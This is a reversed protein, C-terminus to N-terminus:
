TRSKGPFIPALQIGFAAIGAREHRGQGLGAIERGQDGLFIAPGAQRKGGGGCYQLRDVFGAAVRRRAMGLHVDHARDQPMARGGLLRFIQRLDGAARKAKLSEAHGFGAAARVGGAQAGGRPPIAVNIHHVALLDPGAAGLMRVQHQQEGAGRRAVLRGAPRVTEGGEDDIHTRGQAMAQGDPRDARHHVMIAALYEEVPQADRRFVQDARLPLPKRAMSSPIFASRRSIAASHMPSALHNM